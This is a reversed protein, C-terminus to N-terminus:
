METCYSITLASTNADVDVFCGDPFLLGNESSWTAQKNAVGDIQLQIIGSVTSGNRLKVTSLSAGSILSVDFVRIPYNLPTIGADTTTYRIVGPCGLFGPM